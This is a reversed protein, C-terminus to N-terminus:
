SSVPATSSTPSEPALEIAAGLEALRQNNLDPIRGARVYTLLHNLYITDASVECDQRRYYDALSNVETWFTSDDIDYAAFLPVQMYGHTLTKDFDWVLAIVNQTYIAPPM